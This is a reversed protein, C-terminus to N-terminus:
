NLCLNQGSQDGLCNGERDLIIVKLEDDDSNTKVTEEVVAQIRADDGVGSSTIQKCFTLTLKDAATTYRFNGSDCNSEGSLKIPSFLGDDAEAATPGEILEILAVELADQGEPVEREVAVTFDFDENSDPNKSFHVEATNGSDTTDGEEIEEVFTQGNPGFCQRPFSEGVPYGAAACQEFNTINVTNTNPDDQNARWLWFGGAVLIVGLVV